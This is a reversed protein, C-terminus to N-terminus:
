KKKYLAGISYRGFYHGVRGFGYPELLQDLEERSYSHECTKCKPFGTCNCKIKLRERCKVEILLYGEPRLNLVVNDLYRKREEENSIINIVFTSLVVDVNLRSKHLIDTELLGAIKDVAKNSRVRTVQEPLDAAYVNFGENSLFESNRLNGSGYDLVNFHGRTKFFPLYRVVSKAVSSM